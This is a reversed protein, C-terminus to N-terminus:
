QLISLESFSFHILVFLTTLFVLVALWSKAIIRSRTQIPDYLAKTGLLIPMVLCHSFNFATFILQILLGLNIEM